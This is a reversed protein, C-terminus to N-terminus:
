EPLNAAHGIVLNKPIPFNRGQNIGNLKAILIPNNPISTERNLKDIAEGFVPNHVSNGVETEAGGDDVPLVLAANINGAPQAHAEHGRLYQSVFKVSQDFRRHLWRFFALSVSTM